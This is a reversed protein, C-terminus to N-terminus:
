IQKQLSVYIPKICILNALFGNFYKVAFLIGFYFMTPANWREMYLRYFAAM